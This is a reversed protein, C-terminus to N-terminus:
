RSGGDQGAAAAAAEKAERAAKQTRTEIAPTATLEAIVGNAVAELNAVQARILPDNEALAKTEVVAARVAEVAVARNNDKEPSERLHEGLTLARVIKEAADRAAEVFGNLANLYNNALTKATADDPLIAIAQIARNVKPQLHAILLGEIVAETDHHQGPTAHGFHWATGDDVAHVAGEVDELTTGPAIPTYVPTGDPLSDPSLSPGDHGGGGSIYAEVVHFVGSKEYVLFYRRGVKIGAEVPYLATDTIWRAIRKGSHSM